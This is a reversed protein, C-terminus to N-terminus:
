RRKQERDYGDSEEDDFGEERRRILMNDSDEDMDNVIFDDMENEKEAAVM